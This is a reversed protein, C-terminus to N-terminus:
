NATTEGAGYSFRAKAGFAAGGSLVRRSAGTQEFPGCIAVDGRACVRKGTVRGAAGGGRTQLFVSAERQSLVAVRLCRFAFSVGGDRVGRM